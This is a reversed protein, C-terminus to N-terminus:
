RRPAAGPRLRAAGRAILDRRLDAAGSPRHRAARSRRPRVSGHGDRGRARRRARRGRRVRVLVAAPAVRLADAIRGYSDARRKPGTTTDFYGDILPTLDGDARTRSSCASPSCAARRSSPSAVPGARAVARARAARGPLRALELAGSRYGARGSGGRCRSSRRRSATGTWSGTPTPPPPSRGRGPGGGAVAAGGGGERGPAGRAPRAVDERTAADDPAAAPVRAPARARLSLARRVRVVVATTTGEIDLLLVRVGPRDILGRAPIYSPGLCVPEYRADVGTETYRPTWGSPTRSSGSPASTASRACTSGTAPAARSASSTAPCSRSPSCRRTRPTSTSSAAGACSSASRTRTTGTSAASSRALMADLNPTQPSVDIVDATVYGGAGEPPRDRGRLRGAGRGRARRRARSPGAGVARLRHRGRALAARM